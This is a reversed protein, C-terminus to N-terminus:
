IFIQSHLPVANLHLKINQQQQNKKGEETWNLQKVTGTKTILNFEHEFSSLLFNVLDFTTKKFYNVAWGYKVM